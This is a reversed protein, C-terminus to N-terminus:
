GGGGRLSSYDVLAELMSTIKLPTADGIQDLMPETGSPLVKWYGAWDQAAKRSRTLVWRWHSSLKERHTEFISNDIRPATVNSFDRDKPGRM